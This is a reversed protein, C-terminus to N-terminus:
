QPILKDVIISIERNISNSIKQYSNIDKNFEYCGKIEASKDPYITDLPTELIVGYKFYGENSIDGVNSTLIMNADDESLSYLIDEAYAEFGEELMISKLEEYDEKSVHPYNEHYEEWSPLTDYGESVSVLVVKYLNNM